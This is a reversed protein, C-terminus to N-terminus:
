VYIKSNQRKTHPYDTNKRKRKAYAGNREIQYIKDYLKELREGGWIKSKIIPTFKLPYLSM